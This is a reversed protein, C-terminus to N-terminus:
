LTRLCSNMPTQCWIFAESAESVVHKGIGGPLLLHMATQIERSTITSHALCSAEDIIREFIDNIFSDTVRLAKQSLSLGEHVKKLVRPFLHCFQRLLPGPPPPPPPPPPSQLPPPLPMPAEAAGASPEGSLSGGPEETVLSEEWSTECGPEAM